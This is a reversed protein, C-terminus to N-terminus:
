PGIHDNVGHALDVVLEDGSAVKLSGEAVSNGKM